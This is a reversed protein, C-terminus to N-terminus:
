NMSKLDEYCERCMYLPEGLATNVYVDSKKAINNCYDCEVTEGNEYALLLDYCDSCFCYTNGEREVTKSQSKKIIKDCEDCEVTEGCSCFTILMIFALVVTILKKM